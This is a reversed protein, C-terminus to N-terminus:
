QRTASFQQQFHNANYSFLLILKNSQTKLNLIISDQKMMLCNQIKKLKNSFSHFHSQFQMSKILLVFQFMLLCNHSFFNSFSQIQALQFSQELQVVFLLLNIYSLHPPIMTQNDSIIELNEALSDYLEKKIEGDKNTLAESVQKSLQEFSDDVFVSKKPLICDSFRICILPLSDLLLQIEKVEKSKTLPDLEKLNQTILLIALKKFKEASDVIFHPDSLIRTLLSLNDIFLNINRVINPENIIPAILQTSTILYSMKEKLQKM